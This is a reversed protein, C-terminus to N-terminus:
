ELKWEIIDKDKLLYASVGVNAKEGNIYYLLSKGDSAHLSGIDTVFFGLGPYNKGEFLLQNRNKAQTLIEYLSIDNSFFLNIKTDGAVVVISKTNQNDTEEKQTKQESPVRAMTRTNNIKEEVGGSRLSTELPEYTNKSVEQGLSSGDSRLNNQSNRISFFISLFLIIITIVAIIIKKKNKILM